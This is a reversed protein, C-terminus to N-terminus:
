KGDMLAILCLHDGGDTPRVVIPTLSDQHTITVKETEMHDLADKIYKWNVQMEAFPLSEVVDISTSSDGDAAGGVSSVVLVPPEKDVTLKINSKERTAFMGASEVAACLEERSVTAVKGDVIIRQWPMARAGTLNAGVTVTGVTVALARQGLVITAMPEDSDLAAAIQDASKRSISVEAFEPGACPFSCAALRHGTIATLEIRKGDSSLRVMRQDSETADPNACFAVKRIAQRLSATPVERAKGDATFLAPYDAGKGVTLAIKSKGSELRIRGETDAIITVDPGPMHSLADLFKRSEVTFTDRKGTAGGRLKSTVSLNGDTAHVDLGSSSLAVLTEKYASIPSRPDATANALKAATVLSARDITTKM